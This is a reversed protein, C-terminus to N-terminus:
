ENRLEGCKPIQTGNMYRAELNKVQPKMDELKEADSKEIEYIWFIPSDISQNWEMPVLVSGNSQYCPIIPQCTYGKPCIPLQNQLVNLRHQAIGLIIMAIFFMVSFLILANYTEKSVKIYKTTM